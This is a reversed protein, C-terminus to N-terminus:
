TSSCPKLWNTTKRDTQIWSLSVSHLRASTRSHQQLRKAAELRHNGDIRHIRTFGDKRLAKLSVTVGYARDNVTTRRKAYTVIPDAAGISRLSLVIEPFFRYRGKSLFRKIDEVHQEELQRQCGTGRSDKAGQYQMAVSVEALDRLDAFGRIVKFTGLVNEQLLGEFSIKQRGRSM